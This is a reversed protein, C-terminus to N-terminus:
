IIRWVVLQHQSHSHRISLADLSHRCRRRRIFSHFRIFQYFNLKSLSPLIELIPNLYKLHIRYKMEENAHMNRAIQPGRIKRIQTRLM